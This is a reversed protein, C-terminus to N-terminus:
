GDTHFVAWDLVRGDVAVIWRVTRTAIVRYFCVARDVGPMATRCDMRKAFRRQGDSLEPNDEISIMRDIDAASM